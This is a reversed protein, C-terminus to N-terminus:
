YCVKTLDLFLHSSTMIQPESSCLKCRPSQSVVDSVTAIYNNSIFLVKLETANILKGCKDCQDGRADQM